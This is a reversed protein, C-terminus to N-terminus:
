LEFWPIGSAMPDDLSALAALVLEFTLRANSTQDGLSKQVRNGCRCIRLIDRASISIDRLQCDRYRFLLGAIARQYEEISSSKRAIVCSHSFLDESVIEAFDCVAINKGFLVKESQFAITKIRDRGDPEMTCDFAATAVSWIEADTYASASCQVFDSQKFLTGFANCLTSEIQTLDCGLAASVCVCRTEYLSTRANELTM